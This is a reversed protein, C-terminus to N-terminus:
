NMAIRYRNAVGGLNKVEIRFTGTWAPTWRCAETDRSRVSRCIQNGNQDYVFLDLDTDGDGAIAVAAVEGGRFTVHYVDTTRARVVDTKAMGAMTLTGANANLSGGALALAAMGLVTKVKWANISQM